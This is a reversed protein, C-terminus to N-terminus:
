RGRSMQSVVGWHRLGTQPLYDGLRDPSGSRTQEGPTSKGTLDIRAFRGEDPPDIQSFTHFSTGSQQEQEQSQLVFPDSVATHTHVLFPLLLSPSPLPFPLSRSLHPLLPPIWLSFLRFLTPLLAYM